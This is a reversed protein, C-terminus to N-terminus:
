LIAFITVTSVSVLRSTRNKGSEFLTSYGRRAILRIQAHEVIFVLTFIACCFLINCLSVFFGSVVAEPKKQRFGISFVKNNDDNSIAVVRAGSKKHKFYYGKSNLESLEREELLEYKDMIEQQM